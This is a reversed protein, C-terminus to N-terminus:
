DKEEIEVIEEEIDEPFMSQQKVEYKTVIPTDNDDLTIINGGEINDDFKTAISSNYDKPLVKSLQKLCLKKLMWFQSDTESFYLDNRVKLQSVLQLLEGRSMVKFQQTGNKLNAVVYVHTLTKANRITDLPKHELNPNLGLSFDFEDGEHVSEAWINTIEGSRLLINVLGQYGIIPKIVYGQKTNYPILFFQGLTESPMLGLQASFIISAFLSSPNKQFAEMMQPSKKIETLVVQKFFSPNIKHANLLDAFVRKEYADLQSALKTSLEKNM